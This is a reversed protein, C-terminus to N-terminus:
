EGGTLLDFGLKVSILNLSSDGETVSVRDYRVEFRVGGHRHVLWRRVGLGGGVIVLTTGDVGSAGSNGFGVGGTVYPCATAEPTLNHQYNATGVFSHISEGDSAFYSVGLDLFFESAGSAGVAGVRFGPRFAGLLIDGGQPLSIVTASAGEENLVSFGLNAGIVGTARATGATSCALVAVLAAALMPVRPVSLRFGSM